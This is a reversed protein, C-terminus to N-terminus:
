DTERDIKEKLKEGSKLLNKATEHVSQLNDKQFPTLRGIDSLLEASQHIIKLLGNKLNLSLWLLSDTEESIIQSSQQDSIATLQRSKKSLIKIREKAILLKLYQKGFYVALGTFFLLSLLQLAAHSSNLSNAFFLVLSLSLALTTITEFLLAVAFLEFYILFFFSSNLGGTTSVILLLIITFIIADFIYNKETQQNKKFFLRVIFYLCVLFATLQLNYNFLVPNNVWYWTPLIMVAFCLAHLLSNRVTNVQPM